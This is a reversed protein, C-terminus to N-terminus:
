SYSVVMDIVISAALVLVADEGDIVEVGYTDDWSFWQTSVRAVTRDGRTFTYEHENINGNATLDDPGPVDVTFTFTPKGMKFRIGLLKTPDRGGVIRAVSRGDRTMEWTRETSSIHQLITAVEAGGPDRLTVETRLSLIAPHATLVDQGQEDQITYRGRLQWLKQKVAYRM